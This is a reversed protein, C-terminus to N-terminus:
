PMSSEMCAFRRKLDRKTKSWLPQQWSDEPERAWCVEADVVGESSLKDLGIFADRVDHDGGQQFVLQRFEKGRGSSGRVNPAFVAYGDSVLFQIFPDWATANQGDLTDRFVLLAPYGSKPKAGRPKYTLARVETGDFSRYTTIDPWVFRAERRM